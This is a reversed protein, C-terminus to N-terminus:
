DFLEFAVWGGLVLLLLLAWLLLRMARWTQRLRVGVGGDADASSPAGHRERAARPRAGSAERHRRSAERRERTAERYAERRVPTADPAGDTADGASPAPARDDDLATRLRRLSPYRAEHQALLASVVPALERAARGAADRLGGPEDDDEDPGARDRAGSSPDAAVRPFPGTEVPGYAAGPAAGDAVVPPRAAAQELLARLEAVTARLAPDKALAAAIADALPGARRSSRPPDELVATLTQLAHTREFPGVGEVAFYLTAGLSWIDAAPTVRAGRAQEPAMYAPSGLVVGTATRLPDGQVAAIGFDTLKVAGRETILVNAPKVDRHVIGVLHAAELTDLLALGIRATLAPDLPGRDRIVEFLSPARVLEMVIFAEGGEEVVDYVTTAGPHNLRSAARAERLVQERLTPREVVEAAEDLRLQKVAVHRQLLRDEALWVVGMGGEGLAVQLEYRGEITRRDPEPM